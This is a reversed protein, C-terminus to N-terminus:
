FVKRFIFELVTGFIRYLVWIGIILIFFDRALTDPVTANPDVVGTIMSHEVCGFYRSDCSNTRNDGIVFYMNEALEFHTQRGQVYTAAKAEETLYPEDLIEGNIRITNDIGIDVTEGPLAIIRKIIHHKEKISTFQYGAEPLNSVVIDGRAIASCDNNTMVRQGDELTPSMSSGSVIVHSMDTSFLFPITRNALPALIVLALLIALVEPLAQKLFNKM